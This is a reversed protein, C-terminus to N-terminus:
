TALGTLIKMGTSVLHHDRCAHYIIGDLEKTRSLFVFGSSVLYEHSVRKLRDFYSVGADFTKRDIPMQMAGGRVPRLFEIQQFISGCISSNLTIMPIVVSADCGEKYFDSFRKINHVISGNSGNKSAEYRVGGAGDPVKVAISKEYSWLRGAKELFNKIRSHEVLRCLAKIIWELGGAIMSVLSGAGPLITNLAIDAAGKLATWLGMFFGKTLQSEISEGILAFHGETLTVRSRDWWLAIKDVAAKITRSIGTVLQMGGGIFPAAEKMVQQIVIAVIPKAVGAIAKAAFEDDAFMKKKVWDVIDHLAKWLSEVMTKAIDVVLALSGGILGGVITGPIDSVGKYQDVATKFLEATCPFAESVSKPYAARTQWKAEQPLEFREAGKEPAKVTPRSMANTALNVPGMSAATITSTSIKKVGMSVTAEGFTSAGGTLASRAAVVGAGGQTVAEGLMIRWDVEVQLNSLLYVVGFRSHVIDAALAEKEKGLTRTLEAGWQQDLWKHWNRLLGKSARDRDVKDWNEGKADFLATLAQLLDLSVVKLQPSTLDKGKAVNFYAEYAKDVALTEDGRPSFLGLTTADTLQKPTLLQPPPM